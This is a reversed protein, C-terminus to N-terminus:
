FLGYTEKIKALDKEHKRIYGMICVRGLFTDEPMMTLTEKLKKIKDELEVKELKAKDLKTLTKNLM